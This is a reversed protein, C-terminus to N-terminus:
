IEFNYEDMYEENLESISRIEFWGFEDDASLIAGKPADIIPQYVLYLVYSDKKMHM